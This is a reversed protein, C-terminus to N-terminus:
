NSNTFLRSRALVVKKMEEAGIGLYKYPAVEQPHETLAKLIGDRYAARIETNIHVIRVGANIAASIDADSNGSAGHLVLPVDIADRIARVRAIDLAPEPANVLMGHINGVSPSFLHVGTERVFTLADEPTTMDVGAGEPIKELLASSSGIYGLEGEVVTGNGTQQAHAVVERTKQINEDIPLKSGDMIVADFGADIAEKAREVEHCHDANTFLQVGEKRLAAVSAVLIHAGFFSQEGDSVGVIIPIDLEKAVDAITNLQTSDSVNFHPIAVKREEAWALAENLRM